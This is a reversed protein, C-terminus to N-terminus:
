QVDDLQNLSNLMNTISEEWGSLQEQNSSIALELAEKEQMLQRKESELQAVNQRLTNIEEVARSIRQELNQLLEINM